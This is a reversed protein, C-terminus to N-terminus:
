RRAARTKLEASIFKRVVAQDASPASKLRGMLRPLQEDSMKDSWQREALDYVALAKANETSVTTDHCAGCRAAKLVQRARESAAATEDAAALRQLLVLVLTISGRVM